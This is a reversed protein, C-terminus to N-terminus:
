TTFATPQGHVLAVTESQESLLSGSRELASRIKAEGALGFAVLQGQELMLVKDAFRLNEPRHTVFILLRDCTRRHVARFVDAETEVDLNATAEDLLIIPADRLLARAIAFRQRQGSSLTAGFEGISTDIGGPLAEVLESLQCEHLVNEIASTAVDGTGLCLNERLTGSLLMPEQWVVAFHARLERLSYGKYDRDNLLLSGSTPHELGCLLKLLTSKGSGSKGCIGLAAGRELAFDIHELETQGPRYSFAIDRAELAFKAKPAVQATVAMAAMPVAMERPDQELPADLIEFARELSVISQSVSVAMSGFSRLPAAFMGVYATFALFEGLSLDHALILTWAYWTYVATSLARVVGNLVSFGASLTGASVQLELLKTAEAQARAFVPYEASQTRITRIQSLSEFQFASLRASSEAARRWSGRVLRNSILSIGIGIPVAGVALMTLRWNLAFLLPPIVVLYFANGFGNQVLSTLLSFAQQVDSSRGILDGLRRSEFERIPLHLLQRYMMLNIATSLEVNIIRAYVTRVATLLASALAVAAGLAVLVHMLRVDGEPLVEDVLVRTIYPALLATASMVSGLAVMVATRPWYRRLAVVLRALHGALDFLSLARPDKVTMRM